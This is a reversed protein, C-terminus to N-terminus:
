KLFVPNDAEEGEGRGEADGLVFGQVIWHCYEIVLDDGATVFFQDQLKLFTSHLLFNPGFSCLIPFSSFLDLEHQKGSVLIHCMISPTIRSVLAPIADHKIGVDLM